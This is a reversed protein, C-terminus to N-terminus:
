PEHLAISSGVWTKDKNFNVGMMKGQSMRVLNNVLTPNRDNEPWIFMMRIEAKSKSGDVTPVFAAYEVKKQLIWQHPDKLSALKLTPATVAHVPAALLLTVAALAFSKMM